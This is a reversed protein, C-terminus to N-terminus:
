GGWISHWRYAEEFGPTAWAENSSLVAGVAWQGQCFDVGENSGFDSRRKNYYSQDFAKNLERWNDAKWDSIDIYKSLEESIVGGFHYSAIAYPHKGAAIMRDYEAQAAQVLKHRLESLTQTM